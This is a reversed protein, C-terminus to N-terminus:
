DGEDTYEAAIMAGAAVAILLWLLIFTMWGEELKLRSFMHKGKVKAGWM